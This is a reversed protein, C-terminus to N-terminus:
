WAYSVGIQVNSDRYKQNGVMYSLRGYVSANKSLHANLGVTSALVNKPTIDQASRENFSMHSSGPHRWYSLEAFPSLPLGNSQEIEAKFRVGLRYSAFSEGQEHVRTQTQEYVDNASFRSWIVQAQPQLYYRTSQTESVVFGYGAEISASFSRSNYKEEALGAGKVKNRFWGQMVWSDLYVGAESSPIQQWTAYMGLNYGRVKGEAHLRENRTKSRGDALLAMAGVSFKSGDSYINQWIDTGFHLVTSDIKRKYAFQSDFRENQYQGRAWSKRDPSQVNLREQWRHRQMAIAMQRNAFYADVEPRYATPDPSPGPGPDPKPGPGPDPDPDPNPGPDPDPKPDPDPDPDPDPPVLGAVSNLYWSETEGGNGGKVLYYDYLGAVLSPSGSSRYGTSGSDLIFAKDDTVATNVSTGSDASVVKIGVNTQAGDDMEDDFRKIRLHTTGTAKDRVVLRDTSSSDDQLETWLEIVSNQGDLSEVALQQFGQMSAPRAFQLTSNSLSLKNVNLYDPEATQLNFQNDRQLQWLSGNSLQVNAINKPDNASRPGVLRAAGSLTSNDAQINLIGRQVQYLYDGKLESGNAVTMDLYAHDGFGEMGVQVVAGLPDKANKQLATLRSNNLSAQLQSNQPTGQPTYRAYIAARGAEMSSDNMELTSGDSIRLAFQGAGIHSGQNLSLSSKNELEAGVRIFPEDKLDTLIVTSDNLTIHGNHRASLGVVQESVDEGVLKKRTNVLDTGNLTIDGGFVANVGRTDITTGPRKITFIELKSRPQQGTQGVVLVGDYSAVLGGSFEGNYDSQYAMNLHDVTVKASNDSGVGVQGTSNSSSATIVTEGKFHVVAQNKIQAASSTSTLKTDHLTANMGKGGLELALGGRGQDKHTATLNKILVETNSGSDSFIFVGGGDEAGVSSSNVTIDELSVRSNSDSDMWILGKLATITSNKLEFTNLAPSGANNPSGKGDIGVAQKQTVNLYQGQFVTSQSTYLTAENPPPDRGIWIAATKPETGTINLIATGTKGPISSSNLSLTGGSRLVVAPDVTGAPAKLTYAASTYININRAEKYLDLQTYNSTSLDIAAQSGHDGTPFTLTNAHTVPMASSVLIGMSLAQLLVACVPKKQFRPQYM